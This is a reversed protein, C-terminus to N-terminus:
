VPHRRNKGYDGVSEMEGLTSLAQALRILYTELAIRPNANAQIQKETKELEEFSNIITSSPISSIMQAVQDAKDQNVLRDPMFPLIAADRLWSKIIGLLNVLHQPHQALIDAM